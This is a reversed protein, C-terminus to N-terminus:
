RGLSHVRSRLEGDYLRCQLKSAARLAQQMKAAQSREINVDIASWGAYFVEFSQADHDSDWLYPWFPALYVSRITIQQGSRVETVDREGIVEDFPNLNLGSVGGCYIIPESKSNLIRADWYHGGVNRTPMFITRASDNTITLDAWLSNDRVWAQVVEVHVTNSHPAPHDRCGLRRQEFEINQADLFTSCLLIPVALIALRLVNNSHLPRGNM